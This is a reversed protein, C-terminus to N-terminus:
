RSEDSAMCSLGRATSTMGTRFDWAEGDREGTRHVQNLAIQRRHMEFGADDPM